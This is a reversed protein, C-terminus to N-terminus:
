RTTLKRTSAESAAQTLGPWKDSGRAKGGDAPCTSTPSVTGASPGSGGPSQHWLSAKRAEAAIQSFPKM